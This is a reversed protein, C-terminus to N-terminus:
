GRPNGLTSPSCYRGQEQGPTQADPALAFADSMGLERRIPELWDRTAFISDPSAV